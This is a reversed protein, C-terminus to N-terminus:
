YNDLFERENKTLSDLGNNSIKDLINDRRKKRRVKMANFKQDITLRQNNEIKKSNFKFPTSKFNIGKLNINKYIVYLIVLIIIFFIYEM